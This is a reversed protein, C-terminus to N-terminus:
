VFALRTRRQHVSCFRELTLNAQGAGRNVAARRYSTFVDVPHRHIYLFSRAEGGVFVPSAAQM